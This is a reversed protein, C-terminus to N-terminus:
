AAFLARGRKLRGGFKKKRGGLGGEGIMSHGRKEAETLYQMAMHQAHTKAHGLAKHALHKGASKAMSFASDMLGVGYQQGLANAGQEGALGGLYSGALSGAPSFTAGALGGLTSGVIPLGKHVAEHAVLRGFDEASGGPQFANGIDDLFGRGRKRRVGSGIERIARDMGADAVPRLYTGTDRLLSEFNGGHHQIQHPHMHLVMGKGLHTARQFKKMQQMDLHIKHGHPHYKITVGEGHMLRRHQHASLPHIHVTHYM